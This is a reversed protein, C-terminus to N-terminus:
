KEERVISEKLVWEDPDLVVQEPHAAFPLTVVADRESFDLSRSATEGHGTISVSLPTRYVVGAQTQQVAIRVEKRKADWKWSASFVPHGSENIWQNFFWDLPKGYHAEMVRQFDETLAIRERYTRYYERVGNFFADDGMLGRLMHLTWAGKSYPYANLLGFPETIRPDNIPGPTKAFRELYREKSRKMQDLFRSHGYWREFYVATFYTAFGESLWVHHWDAATVSDGFWQHAVEHAVTGEMRGSGNVAKEDYFIASANEMGGFRTSSEVQALKEYPYPGILGNFFELVRLTAGFELIGNERDEPYLYFVAPIGNWSGPHIISFRAVGIVMCYTPIPIAESWRTIKFGNGRYITEELTGNAVVDYDAPAEIIFSVLAKDYPHDICPFWHHARNPWNDAFATRNGFKNAKIFLGDKPKGHYVVKLTVRVGPANNADLDITLREGSHTFVAPRDNVTVTDVTLAGFDLPIQRVNPQNLAMLIRTVGTIVSDTPNVTLQIRYQIADIEPRRQYLDKAQALEFSLALPVLLFLRLLKLLKM